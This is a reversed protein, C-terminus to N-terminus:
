LLPPRPDSIVLHRRIQDEINDASKLANTTSTAIRRTLNRVKRYPGEELMGNKTDKYQKIGMIVTANRKGSPTNDEKLM